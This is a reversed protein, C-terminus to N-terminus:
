KANNSYAGRKKFKDEIFEKNQVGIGDRKWLVLSSEKRGRIQKNDDERGPIEECNRKIRAKLSNDKRGIFDICERTIIYLVCVLIPIVISIM